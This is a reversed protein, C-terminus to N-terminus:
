EAINALDDTEMFGIHARHPTGGTTYTAGTQCCALMNDCQNNDTVAGYQGGGFVAIALARRYGFIGYVATPTLTHDRDLTGLAVALHDASHQDLFIIFKHQDAVASCQHTGPDGFDRDHAAVGLAYAQDLQM